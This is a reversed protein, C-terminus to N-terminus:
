LGDERMGMLLLVKGCLDRDAVWQAPVVQSVDGEGRAGHDAYVYDSGLPLEAELTQLVDARDDGEALLLALLEAVAQVEVRTIRQLLQWVAPHNNPLRGPPEQSLLLETDTRVVTLPLDEDADPPIRFGRLRLKDGYVRLLDAKGRINHERLRQVPIRATSM